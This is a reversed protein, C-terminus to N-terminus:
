NECVWRFTSKVKLGPKGAIESDFEGFSDGAIGEFRISFNDLNAFEEIDPRRSHRVMHFTGSLRNGKRTATGTVFHTRDCGTLQGARFSGIILRREGNAELIVKYAGDRM